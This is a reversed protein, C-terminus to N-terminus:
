NGGKSLDEIDKKTFNVTDGLKYDTLVIPENDLKGIFIEGVEQVIVWMHEIEKDEKFPIKVFDGVEIITHINKKQWDQQRKDGCEKCMLITNESEDM